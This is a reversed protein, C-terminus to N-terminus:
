PGFLSPSRRIMEVVNSANVIEYRQKPDTAATADPRTVVAAVLKGSSFAKEIASPDGIMRWDPLLLAFKPPGPHTWADMSSLNVPLGILSVVVDCDPNAKIVEDFASSEIMFSLPTPSNPDIQISSPDALVSPKIQPHVTKLPAGALGAQLGAIGAKEFQVVEAPRNPRDIFPNGLVLVGKPKAANKLYEGLLQTAYARESVAPSRWRFWLFVGGALVVVAVIIIGISARGRM